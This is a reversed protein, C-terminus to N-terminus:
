YIFPVVHPWSCHASRADRVVKLRARMMAEAVNWNERRRSLPSLELELVQVANSCCSSNKVESSYPKVQHILRLLSQRRDGVEQRCDGQMRVANKCRSEPRRCVVEGTALSLGMAASAMRTCGPRSLYFRAAHKLGRAPYEWFHLVDTVEAYRTYMCGARSKSDDRLFSAGMNKGKIPQGVNRASGGLKSM